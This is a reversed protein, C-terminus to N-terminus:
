NQPDWEASWTGSVSPMGVQAWTGSMSTSSEVTGDYVADSSVGDNLIHISSGNQQWTVVGGFKGYSGPYASPPNVSIGHQLIALEINSPIPNPTTVVSFIWVGLAITMTGPCGSLPLAIAVMLVFKLIRSRM